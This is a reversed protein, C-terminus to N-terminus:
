VSLTKYDDLVGINKIEDFDFNLEKIDKQFHEKQEHEIESILHEVNEKSANQMLPIRLKIPLCLIFEYTNNSLMNRTQLDVAIMEKVRYMWMEEDLKKRNEDTLEPLKNKLAVAQSYFRLFERKTDKIVRDTEELQMRKRRAEVEAKRKEFEDAGETSLHEQEDIEILLIERNCMTERLGRTRKYLERLAQKYQGYLTGGARTTILYDDQFESHGTQHDNLLEMLDM